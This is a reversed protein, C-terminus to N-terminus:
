TVLATSLNKVYVFLSPSRVTDTNTASCKGQEDSNQASMNGIKLMCVRARARVCVCVCVCIETVTAPRTYKIHDM